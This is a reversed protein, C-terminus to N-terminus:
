SADLADLEAYNTGKTFTVTNYGANLSVNVDVNTWRDWGTNAYTVSGATSGNVRLNHTATAGSGNAYRVSLRTTGAVPAYVRFAVASDAFDIRGVARGNWAGAASRTVANTLAADEAEYRVESGRVVPGRDDWGMPSMYMARYGYSSNWGHFVMRVVGDPGTVVDQGGPGRVTGDFTGTTLLPGLAKTYPGNISSASAYSTAYSDDGFYNASYFLWYTSGRKWLTPAEVLSGEFARDQKMLRTAGGATSLGDASLPQLHLWTDRGCCNGDNKWLLYRATGEVYTAADIAGGEAAPCVLSSAAPAFPGAPSSSTAVGICQRQSARDHETYYMVYRGNVAAVDPAWTGTDNANFNWAVDVWAGLTPLADGALLTWSLLDTSTAVQINKGNGNTAYAYYTSGVKLVDPDAFSRDLVPGGLVARAAPIPGVLAAGALALCLALLLVRSRRGSM